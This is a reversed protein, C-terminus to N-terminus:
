GPIGMHQRVAAQSRENRVKERWSTAKAGVVAGGVLGAGTGYYAANDQLHEAITQVGDGLSQAWDSVDAGAVSAEVFPVAEVAAEDAASAFLSSLDVGAAYAGVAIAGAVLAGYGVMKGWSVGDQKQQQPPMYGPPYQPASM